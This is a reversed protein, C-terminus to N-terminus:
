STCAGLHDCESGETGRPTLTRMCLSSALAPAAVSNRRRAAHEPGAALGEAVGEDAGVRDGEGAGVAVGGVGSAFTAMTRMSCVPPM